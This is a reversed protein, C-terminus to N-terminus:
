KDKKILGAAQLIAIAKNLHKKDLTITAETLADLERQRKKEEAELRAAEARKEAEIRRMEEMEERFCAEVTDSSVYRYAEEFEIYETISELAKEFHKQVLENECVELRTKKIGAEDLHDMLTDVYSDFHDFSVEIPLTSYVGSLKREVLM